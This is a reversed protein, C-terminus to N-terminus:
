RSQDQCLGARHDSEQKLQQMMAVDAPCRLGGGGDERGGLARWLDLEAAGSV